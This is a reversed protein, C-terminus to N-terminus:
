PVVALRYKIASSFESYVVPQIIAMPDDLFDQSVLVRPDLDASSPAATGTAAQQQASVPDVRQSQLLVFLALFVYTGM